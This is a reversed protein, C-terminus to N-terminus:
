GNQVNSHLFRCRKGRTCKNKLWWNCVNIRATQKIPLPPPPFNWREDQSPSETVQDDSTSKTPNKMITDNIGSGVSCELPLEQGSITRAMKNQTNGFYSGIGQRSSFPNTKEKTGVEVGEEAVPFHGAFKRKAQEFIGSVPNKAYGQGQCLEREKLEPSMYDRNWINLKM